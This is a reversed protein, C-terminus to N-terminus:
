FPLRAGCVFLAATVLLTLIVFVTDRARYPVVTRETRSAFAGFARSDMALAVREAHRIAGALLPIVAGFGRRAWGLPGRGEAMGRVRHASRILELEVAFRPVFRFAALATYGIRYPLRLQQISAHVLEAATTSLGLILALTVLAGIRLGTALGIQAAALTYRWDGIQVLAPSDALASPSAWLSFSFGLVVVALPVGILLAGVFRANLRTGCLILTLSGLIFLAPTSIDRIFIMGIMAPLPAALKVIPNIDRLFGHGGLIFATPDTSHAPPGSEPHADAGADAVSPPVAADAGSAVGSPRSPTPQPSTM